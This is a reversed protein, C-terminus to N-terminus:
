RDLPSSKTPPSKLAPTPPAVAGASVRAQAREKARQASQAAMERASMNYGGPQRARATAQFGGPRNNYRNLFKLTDPDLVTKTAAPAVEPAAKAGRGMLRMLGRLPNAQKAMYAGFDFASQTKTMGAVPNRSYAPLLQRQPINLTDLSTFPNDSAAQLLEQMKMKRPIGAASNHGVPYASMDVPMNEPLSKPKPATPSSQDASQKLMGLAVMAGFAEASGGKEM